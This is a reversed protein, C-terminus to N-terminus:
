KKIQTLLAIETKIDSVLQLFEAFTKSIESISKKTAEDSKVLAELHITLPIIEEERMKNLVGQFHKNYKHVNKGMINVREEFRTIEKEQHDKYEDFKIQLAKLDASKQSAHWLWGGMLVVLGAIFEMLDIPM